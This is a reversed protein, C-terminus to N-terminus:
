RAKAMQRAAARREARTGAGNTARLGKRIEWEREDLIYTKVHGLKIGSHVHTPIGIGRAKRCFVVDEGLPRGKPDTVGEVFWPYYNPRGDPHTGYGKPHAHSMAVFVQRHILICGGGTAGCKILQNRPYDEVPRIGVAGDPDVYEEYITPYSRGGEHGGAFCLAGLIPVDRPHAHEMLREVLDPEYVMDADIMLLWESQPYKDGLFFEVMQHRIEAVRPGSQLAIEGGLQGMVHQSTYADHRMLATLSMTFRLKNQESASYAIVVGPM